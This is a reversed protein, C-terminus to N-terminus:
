EAYEPFHYVFITKGIRAYPQENKLWNYYGSDPFTGKHSVPTSIGGMLQNLSVAVWEANRQAEDRPQLQTYADGLWYAQDEGGFYDVSIHSIHQEKVFTALKRFDQGWDYNSDVAITYGNNQGGGAINYYTLYNPFASLSSYIYSCFVLTILISFGRQMYPSAIKKYIYAIGSLGVIYILPFTSLVHRIGINLNGALAVGWYIAIFLIIAFLTFNNRIWEAVRSQRKSRRIALFSAFLGIIGVITIIHISLPEKFFYVVPFYYWFAAGKVKGMLYVTNGFQVRQGAMLVGHFFQSASRLGPKDAGYVALGYEYFKLGDPQLDSITDRLQREPPYNRIHLSYVPIVILLMALVGALFSWSGLRLVELLKNRNNAFLIGRFIILIIILPILLITSFKILLALGFALVAGTLRRLSSPKELFQLWTYITLCVALTVGIDTTVLRGNALFSTSFSFLLITGVAFWNGGIKKAWYFLFVGLLITLGVMPLRAWFIISTPDNGSRYLFERGLDFQVWWAPAGNDMRWNQSDIPFSLNMLLLPLAALDKILPPHEPNIRYDQQTIYTYGAVIHALEDFTLSDQRMSVISLVGMLTLLVCAILSAQFISLRLM